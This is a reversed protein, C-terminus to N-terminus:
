KWLERVEEPTKPAPHKYRIEMLQLVGDEGILSGIFARTEIPCKNWWTLHCSADLLTLNLPTWRTNRYIRSYIHSPQLNKADGCRQCKNGRDRKLWEFCEKDLKREVSRRM